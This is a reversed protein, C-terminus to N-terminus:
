AARKIELRVMKDKLILKDHKLKSIKEENRAPHALEKKLLKELRLHRTKLAKLRNMAEGSPQNTLL